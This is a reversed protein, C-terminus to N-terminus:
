DKLKKLLARAHPRYPDKKDVKKLLDEADDYREQGMRALALFYRIGPQDPALQLSDWFAKAAGDADRNLIHFMGLNRQTGADDPYLTARVAHDRKAEEFLGGVEGELTLVGLNMLSLSANMRVIRSPDGLATVLTPRVRALDVGEILGLRSMATARVMPHEDVSARLLAPIVRPDTPFGDLYGLANARALPSEDQNAALSYLRDLVTKDRKRARFFVDARTMLKERATSGPYWNRLTEVAWEPSKDDHCLNCANPVGFRVTVEPTPVTISHDRMQAKISFLTKPM